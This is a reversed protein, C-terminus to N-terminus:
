NLQLYKIVYLSLGTIVTAQPVLHHWQLITAQIVLINVRKKVSSLKTTTFQTEKNMQKQIKAPKVKTGECLPLLTLLTYDLFNLQFWKRRNSDDSNLLRLCM